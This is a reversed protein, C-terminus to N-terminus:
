CADVNYKATVQEVTQQLEIVRLNDQYIYSTELNDYAQYEKLNRMAWALNFYLDSKIRTARTSSDKQILRLGELYKSKSKEFDGELLYINALNNIANAQGLKDNRKKQIEIAKQAFIRSQDYLSDNQYIGSLNSYSKAQFELIKPNLSNM